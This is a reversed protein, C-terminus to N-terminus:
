RTNDRRFYNSYTEVFKETFV